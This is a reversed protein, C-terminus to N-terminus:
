LSKGLRVAAPLLQDGNLPTVNDLHMDPVADRKLCKRENNWFMQPSFHDRCVSKKYLQALPINPLASNGCLRLWEYCRCCFM